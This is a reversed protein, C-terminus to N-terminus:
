SHVPGTESIGENKLIRQIPKGFQMTPHPPDPRFMFLVVLEVFLVFPSSLLLNEGTDFWVFVFIFSSFSPFSVHSPCTFSHIQALEPLISFMFNFLFGFMEFIMGDWRWKYIQPFRLLIGGSEWGSGWVASGGVENQIFRQIKCSIKFVIMNKKLSGMGNWLFVSGIQIIKICISFILSIYRLLVEPSGWTLRLSAEFMILTTWINFDYFVDFIEFKVWDSM